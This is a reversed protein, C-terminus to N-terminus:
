ASVGLVIVALASATVAALGVVLASAALLRRRATERVESFGPTRRPRPIVAAQAAEPRETVLAALPNTVVTTANM